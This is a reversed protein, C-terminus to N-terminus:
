PFISKDGLADSCVREVLPKAEEALAAFKDMAEFVTSVGQQDMEKAIKTCIGVLEDLSVGRKGEIRERCVRSFAM